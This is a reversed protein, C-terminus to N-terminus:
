RFRNGLLFVRVFGGRWGGSSGSMRRILRPHWCRGSPLMHCLMGWGRTKHRWRGIKMLHRKVVGGKGRIHVVHKIGEKRIAKHSGVNTQAIVKARVPHRNRGAM